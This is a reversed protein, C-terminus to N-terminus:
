NLSAKLLDLEDRLKDVRERKNQHFQKAMTTTDYSQFLKALRKVNVGAEVIIMKKTGIDSILRGRRTTLLQFNRRIADADVHKFSLVLAVYESSDPVSDINTYVPFDMDRAMTDAIQILRSGSPETYILNHDYVLGTVVKKLEGLSLGKSLQLNVKKTPLKNGFVVNVHVLKAYNQILTGLGIQGSPLFYRDGKKTINAFTSNSIMFLCTMITFLKM